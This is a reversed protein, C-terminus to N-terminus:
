LWKTEGTMHQTPPPIMRAEMSSSITLPVVTLGQEQWPHVQGLWNSAVINETLISYYQRRSAQHWLHCCVRHLLIRVRTQHLHQIAPGCSPDGRWLQIVQPLRDDRHVVLLSEGDNQWVFSHWYDQSTWIFYGILTVVIQRLDNRLAAM